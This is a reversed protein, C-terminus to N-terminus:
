TSCRTRAAVNMAPATVDRSFFCRARAVPMNRGSRKFPKASVTVATRAEARVNAKPTLARDNTHVANPGASLTPKRGLRATTSIMAAPNRTMLTRKTVVIPFFFALIQAPAAARTRPRKRLKAGSTWSSVAPPVAERGTRLAAASTMLGSTSPAAPGSM